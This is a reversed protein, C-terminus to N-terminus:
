TMVFSTNKIVQYVIQHLLTSMATDRTGYNKSLDMGESDWEWYLYLILFFFLILICASNDIINILNLLVNKILPPSSLTFKEVWSLDLEEQLAFHALAEEYRNTLSENSKLSNWLGASLM